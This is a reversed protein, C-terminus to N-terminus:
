AGAGPPAAADAIQQNLHLRRFGPEQAPTHKAAAAEAELAELPKLTGLGPNAAKWAARDDLRCGPAAEFAEFFASELESARERLEQFMPGVSRIGICWLRGGRGSTATRVADWLERDGEELLGAEDIIALDCGAAHGSGRDAALFDVRTDNQDCVTKYPSSRYTRVGEGTEENFGLGSREAIQQVQLQLERSARLDVSAVLGRWSRRMLPGALHGLLVVAVLGSKGNKRSVSLGAEVVGKKLASRLWAVQWKELKLPHGAM